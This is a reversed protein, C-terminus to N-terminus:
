VPSLIKTAFQYNACSHIGLEKRINRRIDELKQHMELNQAVCPFVGARSLLAIKSDASTDVMNGNANRHPLMLGVLDMNLKQREEYTARLRKLMETRVELLQLEQQESLHLSQSTAAFRKRAVPCTIKTAEDVSSFKEQVVKLTLQRTQCVALTCVEKIAKTLGEADVTGLSSGM